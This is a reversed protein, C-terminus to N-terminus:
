YFDCGKYFSVANTTFAQLDSSINQAYHIINLYDGDISFLLERREEHDDWSVYTSTLLIDVDNITLYQEWEVEVQDANKSLYLSMYNDKAQDLQQRKDLGTEVIALKHKGLLLHDLRWLLGIELTFTVTEGLENIRDVVDASSSLAGGPLKCRFTESRAEYSGHSLHGNLLLLACSSSFFSALMM